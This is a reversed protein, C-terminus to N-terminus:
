PVYPFYGMQQLALPSLQHNVTSRSVSGFFGFGGNVNSFVGPQAIVEPDWVGGPPEWQADPVAIRVELDYLTICAPNGFPALVVELIDRDDELNLLVQWEGDIFRGRDGGVYRITYRVAQEPPPPTGGQCGTPFVTYTVDVDIVNTVGPFYVPAFKATENLAGHAEGPEVPVEPVVTQAFVTHGDSRTVDIRYTEEPEAKFPAWFVHGYTRDFYRILSDRWVIQEAGHTSVVTVDIPLPESRDISARLPVVRIAQTDADTDLYGM